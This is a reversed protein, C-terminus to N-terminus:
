ITLKDSLMWSSCFNLSLPRCSFCTDDSHCMQGHVRTEPGELHTTSSLPAPILFSFVLFCLMVASHVIGSRGSDQGGGGSLLPILQPGWIKLYGIHIHPLPAGASAFPVSRASLLGSAHQTRSRPLSCEGLIMAGAAFLYAYILVVIPARLITFIPVSSWTPLVSIVTAAHLREGTPHAQREYRSTGGPYLHLDM